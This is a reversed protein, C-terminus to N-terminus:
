GPRGHMSFPLARIVVADRDIGAIREGYVSAALGVKEPLGAVAPVGPIVHVFLIDYRNVWRDGPNKRRSCRGSRVMLAAKDGARNGFMAGRGVRRM